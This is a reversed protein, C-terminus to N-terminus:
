LKEILDRLREIARDGPALQAPVGAWGDLAAHTDRWALELKTLSSRLTERRGSPPAWAAARLSGCADELAAASSRSLRRLPEAEVTCEGWYVGRVASRAIRLDGLAEVIALRTRRVSAASM